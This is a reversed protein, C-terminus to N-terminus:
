FIWECMCKGKLVRSRQVDEVVRAQVVGVVVQIQAAVRQFLDLMIDILVLTLRADEGAEQQM